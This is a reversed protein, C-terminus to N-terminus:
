RAVGTKPLSTVVDWVVQQMLAAAEALPADARTGDARSLQHPLGVPSRQYLVAFHTLAILYAGKDNLHITDLTGDDNRAFLDEPGSLDGIGGQETVIRAFRAMVQGAPILRAPRNGAQPLDALLIQDEWHRSLDDDLRNLWGQPDDLRHWTEYLYVRTNPNSLRALDAWLSFYKGSSHYKIADRIEVMETLVVADYDGSAIADRAPRFRPHANETEFGNIPLEPEWHERLSTGWGLQSGYAHDAGALQALMAPMDRGVLSHGLHYVAMPGKPAPLATYAQEIQAPSPKRGVSFWWWTVGALALLVLVIGLRFM